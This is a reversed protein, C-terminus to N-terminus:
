DNKEQKRSINTLFLTKAFSGEPHEEDEKDFRTRKLTDVNELLRDREKQADYVRKKFIYDAYEEQFKGTLYLHLKEDHLTPKIGAYMKFTFDDVMVYFQTPMNNEEKRTIVQIYVYDREDWEDLPSPFIEMLSLDGIFRSYFQEDEELACLAILTKLDEENLRKLFTKTNYVQKM